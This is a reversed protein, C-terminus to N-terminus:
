YSSSFWYCVLMVDGSVLHRHSDPLLSQIASLKLLMKNRSITVIKFSWPKTISVVFPLLPHPILSIFPLTAKLINRGGFFHLLIDYILSAGTGVLILLIIYLYVMLEQWLPWLFSIAVAVKSREDSFYMFLKWNIAMGINLFMCTSVHFSHGSISFQGHFFITMRTEYFLHSKLYDLNFLWTTCQTVTTTVHFHHCAFSTNAIFWDM